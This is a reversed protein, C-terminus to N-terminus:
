DQFRHCVTPLRDAHDLALCADCTTQGDLCAFLGALPTSACRGPLATVLDVNACRKAAAKQARLVTKTVAPGTATAHCAALDTASRITGTKLGEAKCSDFAKVKALAVKVLGRVVTSQCAAGAPDVNADILAADLDPGLVDQPRLLDALATSVDAASAAGFTPALPCKKGATTDTRSAGGATSGAC